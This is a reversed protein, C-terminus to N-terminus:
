SLVCILYKLRHQVFFMVVFLIRSREGTYHLRAICYFHLLDCSAFSYSHVAWLLLPLFFEKSILSFLCPPYNFSQKARKRNKKRSCDVYDSFTIGKMEHQFFYENVKIIKMKSRGVEWECEALQLYRKFSIIKLCEIWQTSLIISRASLIHSVWHSARQGFLM